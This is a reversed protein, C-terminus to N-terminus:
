NIEVELGGVWSAVLNYLLAMILGSVFGMAGYIIPVLIISFIGVIAGGLMSTSEQMGVAAGILSFLTMFVGVILGLIAYLVAFVKGLSMVGIKKIVNM